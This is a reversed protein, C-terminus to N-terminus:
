REPAAPDQQAPKCPSRLSPPGCSQFTNASILIAALAELKFSGNAGDHDHRSAGEMINPVKPRRIQRHRQFQLAPSHPDHEASTCPRRAAKSALRRISSFQSMSTPPPPPPAPPPPFHPSLSLPLPNVALLASTTLLRRAHSAILFSGTM